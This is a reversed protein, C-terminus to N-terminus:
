FQTNELNKLNTTLHFIVGGMDGMGDYNGRKIGEMMERCKVPAILSVLRTCFLILFLFRFKSIRSCFKICFM